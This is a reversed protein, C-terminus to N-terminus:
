LYIMHLFFRICPNLEKSGDDHYRVIINNLCNKKKVQV